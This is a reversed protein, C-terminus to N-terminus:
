SRAALMRQLLQIESTQATVIASALTRVEPTRADAVAAQAMAVGGTHHAIMLRLFVREAEIGQAAQLEALQAPTAMGPMTGDAAAHAAAHEGGVWAMPPRSGTQPLGWQVLWGYMQGAQQQQSTVIDYAVTRVEEDTTRDRVLLAMEVAQAHHTQMDRAFGADAGFDTPPSSRAQVVWLTGVVGVLLAALATLLLRGRGPHQPAPGVEVVDRHDDHDDVADDQRPTVADTV